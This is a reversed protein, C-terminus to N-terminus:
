KATRADGRAACPTCLDSLTFSQMDLRKMLKELLATLVEVAGNTAAPRGIRILCAKAQYAATAAKKAIDHGFAPSMSSLEGAVEWVDDIAIELKRANVNTKWDHVWGPLSAEADSAHKSAIM